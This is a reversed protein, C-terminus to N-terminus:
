HAANEFDYQKLFIWEEATLACFCWQSGDNKSAPVEPSMTPLKIVYSPNQRDKSVLLEKAVPETSTDTASAASMVGISLISLVLAAVQLSTPAAM